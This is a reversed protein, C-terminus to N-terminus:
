YYSFSESQKNVYPCGVVLIREWYFPIHLAILEFSIIELNFFIKEIKKHM